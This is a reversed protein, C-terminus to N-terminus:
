LSEKRRQPDAEATAQELLAAEEEASALQTPQAPLGARAAGIRMRPGTVAENVDLLAMLEEAQPEEIGLKQSLSAATVVGHSQQAIATAAALWAADISPAIERSRAGARSVAYALFGAIPTLALLSVALLTGSMGFVALMVGFMLLVFPLLLGSAIAAARWGARAKRAADARRLLPAERGGYNISRDLRPVRPGGCVDCVWRFEAHPSVGAEARCHPCPDLPGQAASCNPCRVAGPPVETACVRCRSAPQPATM